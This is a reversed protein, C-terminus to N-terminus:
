TFVRRVEAGTTLVMMVLTQLAQEGLGGVPFNYRLVV